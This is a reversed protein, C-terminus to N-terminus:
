TTALKATEDYIHHGADRLKPSYEGAHHGCFLLEGGVTLTVRQSHLIDIARLQGRTALM